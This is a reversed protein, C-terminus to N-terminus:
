INGSFYLFLINDGECKIIKCIVQKVEQWILSDEKYKWFGGADGEDGLFSLPWISGGRLAKEDAAGPM